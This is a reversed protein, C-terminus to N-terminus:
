PLICYMFFKSLLKPIMIKQRTGLFAGPVNKVLSNLSAIFLAYRCQLGINTEETAWQLALRVDQFLGEAMDAAEKVEYWANRQSSTEIALLRHVDEDREAEKLHAVLHRLEYANLHAVPNDHQTVM